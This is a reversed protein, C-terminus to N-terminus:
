MSFFGHMSIEEKCGDERSDKENAKQPYAIGINMVIMPGFGMRPCDDLFAGLTLLICDLTVVTLVNSCTVGPGDQGLKGEAPDVGKLEM